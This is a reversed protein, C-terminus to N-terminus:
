LCSILHTKVNLYIGDGIYLCCCSISLAHRKVSRLCSTESKRKGSDKLRRNPNETLEREKISWCEFFLFFHFSIFFFTRGKECPTKLSVKAHMKKALMEYREKEEKAALHAKRAELM